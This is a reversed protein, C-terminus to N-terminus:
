FVREGSIPCTSVFTTFSLGNALEFTVLSTSGARDVPPWTSVRSLYARCGAGSGLRFAIDGRRSLAGLRGELCKSTKFPREGATASQLWHFRHNFKALLTAWDKPNALALAREVLGYEM